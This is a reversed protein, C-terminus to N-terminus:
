YTLDIKIIDRVLPIRFRTPVPYVTALATEKKEKNEKEKKYINFDIKQYELIKEVSMEM